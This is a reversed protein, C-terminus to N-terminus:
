RSHSSRRWVQQWSVCGILAELIPLEEAPIASMHRSGGSM